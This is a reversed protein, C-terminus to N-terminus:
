PSAVVIDCETVEYVVLEIEDEIRLLVAERPTPAVLGDEVAEQPCHQDADGHDDEERSHASVECLDHAVVLADETPRDGDDSAGAGDQAVKGHLM